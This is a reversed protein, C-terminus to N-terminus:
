SLDKTFTKSPMKQLIKLHEQMSESNSNETKQKWIMVLLLVSLSLILCVCANSHSNIKIWWILYYYEVFNECSGNTEMILIILVFLSFNSIHGCLICPPM